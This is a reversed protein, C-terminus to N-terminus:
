QSVATLRATYPISDGNASMVRPADFREAYIVDGANNTVYAGYITNATGGGNHTFTKEAADIEGKNDANLFAANWTSLAQSAYGSYNAETYNANTDGVAPVHDNKFLRLTKLTDGDLRVRNLTALDGQQLYVNAM